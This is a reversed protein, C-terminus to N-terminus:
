FCFYVKTFKSFYVFINVRNIRKLEAYIQLVYKWYKQRRNSRGYKYVIADYLDVCEPLFSGSMNNLRMDVIASNLRMSIKQNKEILIKDTIYEPSFMRGM